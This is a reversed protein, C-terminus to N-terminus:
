WQVVLSTGERGNKIGQHKRSNRKAALAKCCLWRNDTVAGQAPRGGMSRCSTKEGFVQGAQSCHVRRNRATNM